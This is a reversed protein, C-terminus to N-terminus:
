THTVTFFKVFQICSIFIIIIIISILLDIPGALCPRAARDVPFGDCREGAFSPSVVRRRRRRSRHGGFLQSRVRRMGDSTRRRATLRRRATNVNTSTVTIRHRFVTRPGTCVCYYRDDQNRKTM